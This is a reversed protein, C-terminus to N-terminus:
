RRLIVEHQEEGHDEKWNKKGSRRSKFTSKDKGGGSINVFRGQRGGEKEKRFIADGRFRSFSLGKLKNRAKQRGRKHPLREKWKGMEGTGKGLKLVDLARPKGRAGETLPQDGLIM